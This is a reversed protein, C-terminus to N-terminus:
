DLQVDSFRLNAIKFEDNFLILKNVAEPCM